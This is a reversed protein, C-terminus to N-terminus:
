VVHVRILNTTGAANVPVGATVVVRDGARVHRHTIAAGLAHAFLADTDAMAPILLPEVGWVLALRRYTVPDPTAALVPTAPRHKAVRRATAGTATACVIARARLAQAMEVAAKAVADPIDEEGDCPADFADFDPMLREASRAIRAMVRVAEFPYDGVATEGSLMVADSGDLIANAVDTVEARTPRPSHTMSDLMQTATIVPKGRLNAAAIIRKQAVPVEQLPVEVGLDGRAVMVADAACVIEEIHQVAEAKEIKAVIPRHIGAERM